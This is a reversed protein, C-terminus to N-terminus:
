LRLNYDLCGSELSSNWTNLSSTIRLTVYVISVPIHLTKPVDHVSVKYSGSFGKINLEQLLYKQNLCRRDGDKQNLQMYKEIVIM